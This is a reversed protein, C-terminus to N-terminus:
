WQQKLRVWDDSSSTEGELPWNNNSSPTANQDTVTACGEFFSVLILLLLVYKSKRPKM